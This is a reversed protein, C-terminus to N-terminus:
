AAKRGEKVTDPPPGSRPTADCLARVRGGFNVGLIGQVTPSGYIVFFM